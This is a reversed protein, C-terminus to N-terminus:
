KICQQNYSNQANKITAIKKRDGLTSFIELARDLNDKAIVLRGQERDIIGKQWLLYGTAYKDKISEAIKLADDAMVLASDLNIRKYYNLAEKYLGIKHTDSKEVAIAARIDVMKQQASMRTVMVVVILLLLM